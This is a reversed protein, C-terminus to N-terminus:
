IIEEIEKEIIIEKNTKKATLIEIYENFMQLAEENYRNLDDITSDKDGAFKTTGSVYYGEKLISYFSDGNPRITKQLQIKM